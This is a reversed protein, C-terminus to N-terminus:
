CGGVISATSSISTAPVGGLIIYVIPITGNKICRSYVGTTSHLRTEPENTSCNVFEWYVNGDDSNDLDEQTITLEWRNCEFVVEENTEQYCKKYKWLM